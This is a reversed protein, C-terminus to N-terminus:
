RSIDERAQFIGRPIHTQPREYFRMLRGRIPRAHFIFVHSHLFLTGAYKKDLPYFNM